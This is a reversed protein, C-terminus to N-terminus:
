QAEVVAEWAGCRLRDGLAEIMVATSAARSGSPERGKNRGALPFSFWM